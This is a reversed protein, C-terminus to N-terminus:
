PVAGEAQPGRNHTSAGIAREFVPAIFLSSGSVETNAYWFPNLTGHRTDFCIKGTTALQTREGSGSDGTLIAEFLVHSQRGDLESGSDPARGGLKAPGVSIFRAQDTGVQEDIM